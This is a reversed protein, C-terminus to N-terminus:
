TPRSQKDTYVRQIFDHSYLLNVDDLSLSVINNVTDDLMAERSSIVPQLPKNLAARETRKEALMGVTNRDYYWLLNEEDQHDALYFDAMDILLTKDDWTRVSRIKLVYRRYFLQKRANDPHHRNLMDLLTWQRFRMSSDNDLQTWIAHEESASEDESQRYGEMINRQLARMAEEQMPVAESVPESKPEPPPEVSRELVAPAAEPEDSKGKRRNKLWGLLGSRGEQVQPEPMVPPPPPPPSAPKEPQPAKAAPRTAFPDTSPRATQGTEEPLHEAQLMPVGFLDLLARNISQWIPALRYDGLYRRMLVLQSPRRSIRLAQLFLDANALIEQDPSEQFWATLFAAAFTTEPLIAMRVMYGTLGSNLGGPSMKEEPLVSLNTYAALLPYKERLRNVPVGENLDEPRIQPLKFAELIKPSKRLHEALRRPLLHDITVQQLEHLFAPIDEKETLSRVLTSLVRGLRDNPYHQQYFAWATETLSLTARLRFIEQLRNFPEEGAAASIVLVSGFLDNLRRRSLSYTLALLEDTTQCAMVEALLQRASPEDIAAALEEPFFVQRSIEQRVQHLQLDGPQLM